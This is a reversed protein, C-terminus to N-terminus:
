GPTCCSKQPWFWHFHIAAMQILMSHTAHVTHSPTCAHNPLPPQCSFYSCSSTKSANTAKCTCGHIIPCAALSLHKSHHSKTQMFFSLLHHVDSGSELTCASLVTILIGGLMVTSHLSLCILTMILIAGLM